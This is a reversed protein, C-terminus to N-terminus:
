YSRGFMCWKEAKLNCEPSLCEAEGAVVGDPQEFPICLSKMGMTPAKPAGDAAEEVKGTTLEKIKDECAPTLCHPILVVNKADLAPVVDEWKTIQKRHERFAKDAKDYLAQQITELLEPIKTTMDAISLTGKEGNDRRAWSIMDKAADKPGFEVRLPVGKM